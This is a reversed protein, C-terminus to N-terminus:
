PHGPRGVARLADKRYGGFWDRNGRQLIEDIADNADNAFKPNQALQELRELLALACGKRLVKDYARALKLTAKANFPDKQLAASLDDIGDVILDTKAEPTAAKDAGVLKSDADRSLEDAKAIDRKIPGKAKTIFFNCEDQYIVTVKDPPLDKPPKIPQPTRLPVPPAGYMSQCGTAGLVLLM